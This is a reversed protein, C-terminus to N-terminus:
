SKLFLHYNINVNKTSGCESYLQNFLLKDGVIQGYCDPDTM